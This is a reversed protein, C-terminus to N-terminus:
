NDHEKAKLSLGQAKLDKMANVNKFFRPQSNQM